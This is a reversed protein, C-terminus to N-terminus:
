RFKPPLIEMKLDRGHSKLDELGSFDRTKPYDVPNGECTSALPNKPHKFLGVM